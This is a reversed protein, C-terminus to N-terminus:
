KKLKKEMERVVKELKATEQRGNKMDRIIVTGELAEKQGLILTYAVGIRDAMRLQAKLSDRGFSESILINARRFEELLKLSKRKALNGLQALYIEPTESKKLTIKKNKLKYNKNIM